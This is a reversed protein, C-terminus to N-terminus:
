SFLKPRLNRGLTVLGTLVALGATGMSLGKHESVWLEPSHSHSRRDFRGHAAYDGKVPEFLNDPRQRDVPQSTQQAKYNTKALYWDLLGPVIKQGWIAMLTPYGVYVERRRHTAAWLIAEAGIEPQYIPPVPQAKKDLRSRVWDFQPTNMSPLEVMTIHIRSGMHKLESRISDTFGRVGHKAGCYASQLPISRIALASGAQVIVGRDRPLMRKLAAMTGYVQGLYTVETVRKFEVPDIETFPSFISAMANNIWIDIRGFAKEVESAAKEVQKPDAVDTPVVIAKGGLKEIELKTEALRDKGRALVGIWDGRKAFTEAIARGLGATGGTIVVVEPDKKKDTFNM